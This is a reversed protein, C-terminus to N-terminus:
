DTSGVQRAVPRAPAGGRRGPGGRDRVGTPRAGGHPRDGGARRGGVADHDRPLPGLVPRDRGAGGHIPGAGPGRAPQPPPLHRRRRLSPPVLDGGHAPRGLPVPGDWPDGERQGASSGVLVHRAGIAGLRPPLQPEPRRGPLQGPHGASAGDPNM